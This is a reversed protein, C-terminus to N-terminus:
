GLYVKVVKRFVKKKKKWDRCEGSEAHYNGRPIINLKRLFIDSFLIVFYCKLCLQPIIASVNM